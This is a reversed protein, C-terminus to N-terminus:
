FHPVFPLIFIVKLELREAEGRVYLTHYVIKLLSKRKRM